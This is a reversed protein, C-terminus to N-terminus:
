VPPNSFMVLFLERQRNYITKMSVTNRNDEVKAKASRQPSLLSGNSDANETNPASGFMVADRGVVSMGDSKPPTERDLVASRMSFMVSIEPAVKSSAVPCIM